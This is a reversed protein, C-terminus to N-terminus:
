QDSRMSYSEIQETFQYQTQDTPEWECVINCDRNVYLTHLTYYVYIIKDLYISEHSNWQSAFCEGASHELCRCKKWHWHNVLMPPTM